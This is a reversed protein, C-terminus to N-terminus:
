QPLYPCECSLTDRLTNGVVGEWEGKPIVVIVEGAKGSINPLLVKKKTEEKCSIAALAVVAKVIYTLFRKM